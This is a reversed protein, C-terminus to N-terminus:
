EPTMCDSFATDFHGIMEGNRVAVYCRGFQAFWEPMHEIYFHFDKERDKKTYEIVQAVSM